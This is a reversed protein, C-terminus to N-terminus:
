PLYQGLGLVAVTRGTLGPVEWGEFEEFGEGMGETGRAARLGAVDAFPATLGDADVAGEFHGVVPVVDVADGKLAGEDAGGAVALGKM